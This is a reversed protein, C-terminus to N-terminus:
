SACYAAGVGMEVCAIIMEEGGRGLRDFVSGFGGCFGVAGVVGVEVDRPGM